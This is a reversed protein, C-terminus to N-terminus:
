FSAFLQGLLQFSTDPLHCDMKACRTKYGTSEEEGDNQQNNKNGGGKGYYCANDNWAQKDKDWYQYEGIGGGEYALDVYAAWMLFRGCGKGSLVQNDRSHGGEEDEDENIVDNCDIMFGLLRWAQQYEDYRGMGEIFPQVSFPNYESYSGHAAAATDDDINAFYDDLAADELKRGGAKGHLLPLFEVDETLSMWKDKSEEPDYHVTLKQLDSDKLYPMKKKSAAGKAAALAVLSSMLALVSFSSKAM